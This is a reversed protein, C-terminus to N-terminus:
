SPAPPGALKEAQALLPRLEEPLPVNWQEAWREMRCLAPFPETLTDTLSVFRRGLSEAITQASSGSWGIFTCDAPLNNWRLPRPMQSDTVAERFLMVLIELRRCDSAAYRDISSVGSPLILFQLSLCGSFACGEITQLSSPLVLCQLGSLATLAYRGLVRVTEPLILKKISSLSRCVQMYWPSVSPCSFASNGIRTITGFGIREPVEVVPPQRWERDWPCGRYGTLTQCYQRRDPTPVPVPDNNRACIWTRRIEAASPEARTADSLRRAMRDRNLQELRESSLVTNRYNLLATVTSRKEEEPLYRSSQVSEMIRDYDKESILHEQLIFDRYRPARASSATMAAFRKTRIFDRLISLEFDELHEDAEFRIVIGRLVATRLSSPVQSGPDETLHVRCPNRTYSEWGARGSLYCPVFLEPRCRLTVDYLSSRWFAHPHLCTLSAPLTVSTLWTQCFASDAIVEVGSGLDARVLSGFGGFALMGIYWVSDPVTVSRLSRCTRTRGSRRVFAYDAVATVFDPLCVDEEEQGDGFYAILTGDAAVLFRDDTGAEKLLAATRAIRASKRATFEKLGHLLVELADMRRLMRGLFALEPQSLVAPDVPSVLGMKKMKTRSPLSKLGQRSCCQFDWLVTYDPPSLRGPPTGAPANLSCIYAASEAVDPPDPLSPFSLMDLAAKRWESAASPDLQPVSGYASSM